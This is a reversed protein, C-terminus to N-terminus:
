HPPVNIFYQLIKMRKIVIPIEVELSAQISFHFFTKSSQKISFQANMPDFSPSLVVKGEIVQASELNGSDFDSSIKISSGCFDLCINSHRQEM